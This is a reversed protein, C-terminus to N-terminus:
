RRQGHRGRKPRGGDVYDDDEADMLNGGKTGKLWAALEKALPGDQTKGQRVSLGDYKVEFRTLEYITDRFAVPAAVGIVLFWVWARGDEELYTKHKPKLRFVSKAVVAPDLKSRYEMADMAAKDAKTTETASDILTRIFRAWVVVRQSHGCPHPGKKDVAAYAEQWKAREGAIAAKLGGTELLLAVTSRDALEAIQREHSLVMRGILRTMGGQGKGKEKGQPKAGQAGGAAAAPAASAAAQLVADMVSELCLCEDGHLVSMITQRQALRDQEAAHRWRHQDLTDAARSAKVWARVSSAWVAKDQALETWHREQWDSPAVRMLQALLENCQRRWSMHNGGVAKDMPGEVCLEGFALCKELRDNDYRALHGLYGLKRKGIATEVTVAGVKARLDAMTEKGKMDRIRYKESLTVGRLVRNMLSQYMAMDRSAVPRTEKAYLLTAEVTAEVVRWKDRPELGLRPLQRNIKYWLKRAAALRKTTDMETNGDCQLFSGLLEVFEHWKEAPQKVRLRRGAHGELTVSPTTEDRHRARLLQWKGPHVKEKWDALVRTVLLRRKQITSEREILTTDDAFCALRALQERWQDGIRRFQAAGTNELSVPEGNQGQAGLRTAFKVTPGSDEADVVRCYDQLVANHYLLYVTCSSPCGERLGRYLQYEDSIGTANRCRYVTDSYLHELLQVVLPPVGYHSLVRWVGNRPVSPYTKKIDLLAFVIHDYDDQHRITPNGWMLQVENFLLTQLHPGSKRLMNITVEDPGAASERMKAWVRRIKQKSPQDALSHRTPYDPPLRALVAESVVSEAEGIKMFHTRLEEPTHLTKGAHSVSDMTVGLERLGQYFRHLDGVAMSHNLETVVSSVWARRWRRRDRRFSQTVTRLEERCSQEAPTGMARQRAEALARLRAKGERVETAHGDLFPRGQLQRGRGAVAELEDACIKAIETWDVRPPPTRTGTVEDSPEPPRAPRPQKGRLRRAVAAMQRGQAGAEQSVDGDEPPDIPVGRAQM